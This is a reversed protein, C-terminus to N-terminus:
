NKVITAVPGHSEFGIVSLDSPVQIEDLRVVQGVFLDKESDVTLFEPMSKLQGKVYLSRRHKLVLGIKLCKEELSSFHLPVHCKVIDKLDVKMFDLHLLENTIPHFQSDKMVTLYSEGDLHIEVPRAYTHGIKQIQKFDLVILKEFTEKGRRMFISAPILGKKRLEKKTSKKETSRIQAKLVLADLTM